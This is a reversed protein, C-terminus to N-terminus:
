ILSMERRFDDDNDNLLVAGAEFAKVLFQIRPIGLWTSAMGSSIKGSKFLSVATEMKIYETFEKTDVNLGILLEPPCEIKITSNM